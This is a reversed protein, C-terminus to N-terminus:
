NSRRQSSVPLTTMVGKVGGSSELSSIVLSTTPIISLSGHPPLKWSSGFENTTWDAKSGIWYTRRYPWRWKRTPSCHERELYQHARDIGVDYPLMDLFLERLVLQAAGSLALVSDPDRQLAQEYLGLTQAITDKTVPLLQVARAQLVLDLANPNTPRERLSRAAKIDALNINLAARMRIVMQEQVSALDAIKQDFSDSWLQAGNETSALEANVRLTSGFRQVSGRVVYRVGLELGIRRVDEAKGRYSYATARSIVFTGPIHSLATTLGDTIGAVLYGDATDGGLNDFPLVVISLRPPARPNGFWSGQWALIALLATAILAGTGAILATPWRWRAASDPAPAGAQTPPPAALDDSLTVPLTLRYGRGSVTQIAGDETDDDDLVRRLAGIQVTLNNPEVAVGPWVADMITDRAVVEGPKDTLVVLLESARSGLAVPEWAGAPNRRWLRRALRDFRFAGVQLVGSGVRTDM